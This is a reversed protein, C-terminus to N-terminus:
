GRGCNENTQTILFTCLGKINGVVNKFSGNEIIEYSKIEPKDTFQLHNNEKM